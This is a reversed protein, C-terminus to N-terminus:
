EGQHLRIRSRSRRKDATAQLSNTQPPAPSGGISAARSGRLLGSWSFSPRLIERFEAVLEKRIKPIRDEMAKAAEVGKESAHFYTNDIGVKGYEFLMEQLETIADEIRAAVDPDLWAINRHYCRTLANLSEITAKGREAVKGKIEGMTHGAQPARLSPAYWKQYKDEVDFLLGSLEALVEARKEELREFRSRRLGLFYGLVVSVLAGAVGGIV